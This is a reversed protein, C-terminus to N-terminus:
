LALYESFACCLSAFPTQLFLQDDKLLLLLSIRTSFRTTMSVRLKENKITYRRDSQPNKHMQASNSSAFIHVM